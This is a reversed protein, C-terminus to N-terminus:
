IKWKRETDMGDAIIAQEAVRYVKTWSHLVTASAESEGVVAVLEASFGAIFATRLLASSSTRIVDFAGGCRSDIEACLRLFGTGPEWLEIAQAMAWLLDNVAVAFQREVEKKTEIGLGIRNLGDTFTQIGGERVSAGLSDIRCKAELLIQWQSRVTAMEKGTVCHALYNHRQVALGFALNSEMKAWLQDWDQELENNMQENTGVVCEDLSLLFEERMMKFHTENADYFFHNAGLEQLIQCLSPEDDVNDMILTFSTQYAACFHRFAASALLEDLKQKTTDFCRAFPWLARFPAHRHLLRLFMRQLVVLQMNQKHLQMWHARAAQMPVFQSLEDDAETQDAYAETGGSHRPTTSRSSHRRIVFTASSSAEVPCIAAPTPLPRNPGSAPLADDEAPLADDEAPLADDEAEYAGMPPLTVSSFSSDTFSRLRAFAPPAKANWRDCSTAAWQVPSISASPSSNNDISHASSFSEGINANGIDRDSILATSPTERGAASSGPFIQQLQYHHYM